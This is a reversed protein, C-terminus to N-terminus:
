PILGMKKMELFKSLRDVVQPTFDVRPMNMRYTYALQSPNAAKAADKAIVSDIFEKNMVEFPIDYEFGGVYGEEPHAALQHKYTKHPVAPETIKRGMPDLRAITRGASYDAAHLLEPDTIAFRAAGVEPMGAKQFQGQGMLEAMKTRAKGPGTSYLYEELNKSKLGPWDAYAAWKNATNERMQRDFEDVVDKKVKAKAFMERLADTMHHSYDGSRSGMAVYSLYPDFGAESAAKAKNSLITIVGPDSAWIARDPGTAAPGYMFSHGAQMEVPNKFSIDNVGRLLGGGMTRDGLAPILSAGELDEPRIFKREPIGATLQHEATMEGLPRSFVTNSIPHWLRPDRERASQPQFFGHEGAQSVFRSEAPREATRIINLAKSLKAAEAEDPAVTAGAVGTAAAAAPKAYERAIEVARRGAAGLPGRAYLAAPLAAGMATSTYDGQGIDHAMDALTLPIGTIMPADAVGFGLTGSDPLGTSGVLLDAVGRRFQAGPERAGGAIAGGIVDRAGLELPRAVAEGEQVPFNQYNRRARDWAEGMTAPDMVPQDKAREPDISAITERLRQQMTPGVAEGDAHHERVVRLADDVSGGHAESLRPVEMNYEGGNGIASKLQRQHLALIEEERSPQQGIELGHLAYEKSKPGGYVIGDYGEDILAKRWDPHMLQPFERSGGAFATQAWDIMEPTDLVLPTQIDAYVPMVNAGERYNSGGGTNHWAPQKDAYPSLWIAPGSVEPDFGGPKLAELNPQTTAHYLRIPENTQTNKIASRSMMKALNAAREAPDTVVKSPASGALIGLAKKIVGGDGYGEVEGGAERTERHFRTAGINFGPYKAFDPVDRGLRGQARPAWFYTSGGTIDGADYAKQLAEAAADYAKMGPKFKMPYNEKSEDSWPEFQNKAFLIDQISKGFRGGSIARNLIVNAIAHAEEPSKGSAEAAITKAILDRDEASLEPYNVARNTVKRATDVAADTASTPSSAMRIPNVIALGEDPLKHGPNLEGHGFVGLPESRGASLHAYLRQGAAIQAPTVDSNDKAIVEVGYTNANSLDNIKSPLIHAGRTGPPLAAHIGGDRDIIYHTGLVMPRGTFPDTRTNLTNIVGEPTGEGATHHFVVAQPNEMAAGRYQALHSIDRIDLPSTATSIAQLAPAQAGGAAPAYAMPRVDPAARLAPLDPAVPSPMAFGPPVARFGTYPFIPEREPALQNPLEFGAKPAEFPIKVAPAEPAPRPRPMPVSGTVDDEPRGVAPRKDLAMRAKDAKFFDSALEPDGWNTPSAAEGTSLYDPGSFLDSLFGGGALHHRVAHLAADVEGGDAREISPLSDAGGIGFLRLNVDREPLGYSKGAERTQAFLNAQDELSMEKLRKQWFKTAIPSIGLPSPALKRGIENEILDYAANGIGKGIFPDNLSAASVFNGAGDRAVSITGANENGYFVRFLGNGENKISVNPPSTRVPGSGLVVEGARAPAGAFGGMQAVMAANLAREIGEDSMPNVEGSQVQRALKAADAIGEAGHYAASTGMAQGIPLGAPALEMDQGGFQLWQRPDDM